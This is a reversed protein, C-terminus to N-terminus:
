KRTDSGSLAVKTKSLRSVDDCHLPGSTLYPDPWMADHLQLQAPTETKQDDTMCMPMFPSGKFNDAQDPGLVKKVESADLLKLTPFVESNWSWEFGGLPHPQHLFAFSFEQIPSSM